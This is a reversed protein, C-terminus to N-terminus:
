RIIMVKKVKTEAGDQAAIFIMYVGSAVKHKGFARTDWEITGGESTTEYVLNGEIDTIKVNAKDILGSIKVTGNYEPRVPNPYVFVNNLDDQPKTSVGQFSVLGRDTAFFVEGTSGDIEIDLINNSPLPSNEKTFHYLTQQGNSSVLFAGAGEVSVWKNNAGDVEIDMISQQYFLEQALNDDLIIVSNTELATDTLFRDVSSLIRLGAFTGIWLQNRHDVAISRVDNDPLNGSGTGTKILLFKNGYNENFGIVGNRYSAIWKTGNKDIKIGAYDDNDPNMTINNLTYSQWSGDRKLVKIANEVLSNTMWLNGNKDFAPGNIRVDIYSPNPPSLVLSELGNPGTNSQNYLTIQNNNGEVKLLGSFFSTFYVQNSNSPNIAIDSIARAGLLDSFPITNWGNQDSFKSIEYQSTTGCCYEYPNYQKTYGGYAAWLFNDAKKIRFLKNRVPGDPTIDEFAVSNALTTQYMGKDATGVFIKDGIVTACTFTSAVDPIQTIHVLPLLQADYVYVHNASTFVLRNEFERLDVIPQGVNAIEQFSGGAYKYVKNNTLSAILQNQFTVIGSWYGADFTSWQSFDVLNPSTYDARRIGNLETVAYIFGNFVTTQFVKLEEGAPGIFYTDGFQSTALDFVCIGFDCSLYAKGQYEYIHNIKKRNPPITAKNLIDIVNLVAGDTENVVLLLGNQNGVLIKKYTPSYHFSSIIDAKFDNVSNVTQLENTITNKSFVANESAAYVKDSNQSLDKIATYSFFGRWLQNQQSFSNLSFFTLLFFSVIKKM